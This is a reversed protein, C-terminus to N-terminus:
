TEAQVAEFIRGLLVDQLKRSDDIESIESGFRLLVGMDQSMRELTAIDRAFTAKLYMSDRPDLQTTQSSLLVGSEPGAIAASTAALESIEAPLFCFQSRGISLRDGQQLCAERTAQGNLFTGNTSECDILVFRDSKYEIRCHHSSVTPDDLHVSNSPDRGITVVDASLSIEYQPRVSICVLRANVAHM